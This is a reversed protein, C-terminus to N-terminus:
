NLGLMLDKVGKRDQASSWVNSEGHAARDKVFNGDQERHSVMSCMWVSDGIKLLKRFCGRKAKISIKWM